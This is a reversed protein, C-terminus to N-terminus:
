VFGKDILAQTVVARTEATAKPGWEIVAGEFAICGSPELALAARADVLALEPQEADVPIEAVNLSQGDAVFYVKPM